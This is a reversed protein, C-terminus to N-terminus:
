LIGGNDLLIKQAAKVDDKELAVLLEAWAQPNDRARAM